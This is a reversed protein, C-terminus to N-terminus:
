HSTLWCKADKEALDLVFDNGTDGFCDYGGEVMYNLRNHCELHNIAEFDGQLLEFVELNSTIRAPTVSKPVVSIGRQVSWSILVNAPQKGLKKAISIVVPHDVVRALGRNNNGLPSYATVAIGKRKLYRLLAVQQLEPHAEIQNVAPVIKATTLLKDILPVNFNSVGISRVKNKAVMEELKAWTAAFDKIEPHLVIRGTTTDRPFNGCGQAFSVPWHILYLDLYDTQLDALTEDLAPEVNEPRHNTNWLKSTIFIDSRPIGSRKIGRGVERENGYIAAADIHRYGVKLAHEVAREVENPNSQWTGLGVAPILYGSNLKFHNPLSMAVTCPSTIIPFPLFSVAAAVKIYVRPSFNAWPLLFLRPPRDVKFGQSCPLSSQLARAM